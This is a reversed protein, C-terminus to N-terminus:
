RYKLSILEYFLEYIKRIEPKSSLLDLHKKRIEHDNRRAPGTQAESPGLQIAKAATEKILEHIMEFPLQKEKLIEDATSYLFNVFNNAFVGSLHLFKRTESDITWVKDSIQSALEKLRENFALNPSEICIPIQKFDIDRNKTFTQFPYFVGSEEVDNGFVSLPMSGSTHVKKTGKLNKHALVEEIINDKLCIFYIDAQKDLLDLDSIPEANVPAGIIKANDINRSYVQCLIHGKNCFAKSLHFAVNGAGIMTIKLVM